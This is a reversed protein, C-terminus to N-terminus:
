QDASIGSGTFAYGQIFPVMESAHNPSEGFIFAAEGIAAVQQWDGM